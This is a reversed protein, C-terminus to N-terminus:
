FRASERKKRKWKVLSLWLLAHGPVALWNIFGSFLYLQTFDKRVKVTPDACSTGSGSFYCAIESAELCTNKWTREWVTEWFKWPQGSCGRENCSATTSAATEWTGTAVTQIFSGAVTERVYSIHLACNDCRFSVVDQVQDIICPDWGTVDSIQAKPFEEALCSIVEHAYINM